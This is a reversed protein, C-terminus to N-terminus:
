KPECSSGIVFLNTYDKVRDILHEAETTTNGQFAVGVYVPTNENLSEGLVNQVSLFSVTTITGILISILAYNWKSEANV